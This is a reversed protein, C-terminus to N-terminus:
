PASASHVGTDHVAATRRFHNGLRQQFLGVFTKGLQNAQIPAGHPGLDPHPHPTPTSSDDFRRVPNGFLYLSITHIFAHTPCDNDACHRRNPDHLSPDSIHSIINWLRIGSFPKVSASPALHSSISSGTPLRQALVHGKKRTLGFAAKTHSQFPSHTPTHIFLLSSTPRSTM